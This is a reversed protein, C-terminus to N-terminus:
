NTFYEVNVNIYIRRVMDDPDTMRQAFPTGKTIYVRGGNIKIAPPKMNVIRAEIQDAKQSIDTWSTSRYWLSASLAVPNDLGDVSVSYTIRPFVADDPVTSEDYAPLGFSSWFDGIATWRDSM